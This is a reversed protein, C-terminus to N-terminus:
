RLRNIQATAYRHRKEFDSKAIPAKTIWQKDRMGCHGAVKSLDQARLAAFGHGQEEGM